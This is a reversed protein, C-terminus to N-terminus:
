LFDKRDTGSVYSILTESGGVDESLYAMNTQDRGLTTLLLNIKSCFHLFLIQSPFLFKVQLLVGTPSPQKQM